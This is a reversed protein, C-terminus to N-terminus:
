LTIKAVYAREFLLAMAGCFIIREVTSRCYFTHPDYGLLSEMVDYDDDDIIGYLYCKLLLERCTFWNIVSLDTVTDYFRWELDTFREVRVTIITRLETYTAHM